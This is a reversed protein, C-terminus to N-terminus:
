KTNNVIKALEAKDIKISSSTKVDLKRNISRMEELIQKLLKKM